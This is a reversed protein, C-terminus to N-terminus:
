FLGYVSPHYGDHGGCHRFARAARGLVATRLRGRHGLGWAFISVDMSAPEALARGQRDDLWLSHTGCGPLAHGGSTVAPGRPRWYSYRSINFGVRFLYDRIGGPDEVDPSTYIRGYSITFVSRVTSLSHRSM